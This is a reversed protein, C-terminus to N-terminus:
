SGASRRGRGAGRAHQELRHRVGHDERQDPRQDDRQRKSGTSHEHSMRLPTRSRRLAIKSRIRESRYARGRSSGRGVEHFSRCKRHRQQEGRQQEGGADARLEHRVEVFARQPHARGHGVGDGEIFRRLDHGLDARDDGGKGLDGRDSRLMASGVVAGVRGAEEVGFEIDAQLGIRLPAAGDAGLRLQDVAIM